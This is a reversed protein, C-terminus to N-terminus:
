LVGKLSQLVMFCIINFTAMVMFVHNKQEGEVGLAHMIEYIAIFSINLYVFLFIVTGTM